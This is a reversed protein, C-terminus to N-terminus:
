AQLSSFSTIKSDVSEGIVEESLPGSTVKVAFVTNERFFSM